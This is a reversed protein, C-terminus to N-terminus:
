TIMSQMIHKYTLVIYMSHIHFQTSQCRLTVIDTNVMSCMANIYNYILQKIIKTTCVIM